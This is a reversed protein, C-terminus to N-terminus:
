QQWLFSHIPCRLQAVGRGLRLGRDIAVRVTVSRISGPVSPVRVFRYNAPREVPDNPADALAPYLRGWLFIRDRPIFPYQGTKFAAIYYEQLYLWAAVRTNNCSLSFGIRSWQGQHDFGNTWSESQPQDGEIPGMYHSEGFDNWSIVQVMDIRDRIAILMEWRKALHWNDSRYVLNKNYSDPGYHQFWHKAEVAVM